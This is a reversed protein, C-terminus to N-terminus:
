GNTITLEDVDTLYACSLEIFSIANNMLVYTKKIIDEFNDEDGLSQEVESIVRYINGFIKCKYLGQFIIKNDLPSIILRIKKNKEGSIKLTRLEYQNKDLELM